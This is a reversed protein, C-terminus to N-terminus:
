SVTIVTVRNAYSLIHIYACGTCVLLLQFLFEADFSSVHLVM